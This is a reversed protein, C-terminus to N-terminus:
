LSNCGVVSFHVGNAPGNSRPSLTAALADQRLQAGEAIEGSLIMNRLARNTAAAVTEREIPRPSHRIISL